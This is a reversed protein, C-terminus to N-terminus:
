SLRPNSFCSFTLIHKTGKYTNMICAVHDVHSSPPQIIYVIFSHIIFVTSIM